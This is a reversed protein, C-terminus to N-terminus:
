ARSLPTALAWRAEARIGPDPDQLAATLASRAYHRDPAWRALARVAALRVAVVEDDLVSTLPGIAARPGLTGLAVVARERIPWSPDTLAIEGLEVAARLVVLGRITEARGPDERRLAGAYIDWAADRMARVLEAAVARVYSDAGTDAAQVLARVGEEGVLVEQEDILAGAAARRVRADRDGLARALRNGAQEPTRPTPAPLPLDIVTM